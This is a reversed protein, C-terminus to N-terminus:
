VGRWGEGGCGQEANQHHARRQGETGHM